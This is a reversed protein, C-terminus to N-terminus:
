LRGTLEAPVALRVPVPLLVALRVPVPLGVPVRRFEKEYSSAFMGVTERGSVSSSWAGSIFLFRCEEAALVVLKLNVFM